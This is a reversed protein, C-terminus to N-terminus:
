DSITYTATQTSIVTGDWIKLILTAVYTGAPIRPSMGYSGGTTDYTGGVPLSFWMGYGGPTVGPSIEYILGLFDVNGTNAFTGKFDVTLIGNVMVQFDTIAAGFNYTTLLPLQQIASGMLFSFWQLHEIASGGMVVSQYCNLGNELISAM